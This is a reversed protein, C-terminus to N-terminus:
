KLSALAGLHYFLTKGAINFFPGFEWVRVQPFFEKLFRGLMPGTFFNVHTTEFFHHMIVNYEVCTELPTLNPVSLIFNGRAVRVVEKMAKYPDELHELVELMIVTDFSKDPFDLKEASMCAANVHKKAEAIYEADIDIGTYRFGEKLLERGYVGHGCGIDLITKGASRRIVELIESSPVKIPPGSAYLDARHLMDTKKDEQYKFFESYIKRMEPNRIINKRQKLLYWAEKVLSPLLVIKEKINKQKHDM